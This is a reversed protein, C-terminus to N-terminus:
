LYKLWWIDKRRQKLQAFWKTPFYMAVTLVAASLWIMWFEDFGYYDGKNPGVTAWMINYLVKLVYLHVIYFFMPAGGFYALPKAVPSNPVREFLVLLLCGIGITPMLFLLSPPYKTLALFSMVTRLPPQAQFWPADGYFNLFRLVLFGVILGIGIAVLRKERADTTIRRGFIPGCAYGTLIVGIWPLLPYSTRIVLDSGIQFNTREYLVGWIEHFPSGPTVVIGGLLNHLCVIGLGITFQAWRPLYILAALAIMSLGIAWIVQLYIVPPPYSLSQTPWAYGVITFELLVLFVGRSLLFKSVEAKSHKQGYLYASLGTLAVFIPACLTSTLRTFFLAPAVTRADVPDTIAVYLWFTERVHDLLMFVMVLGRLADISTIRSTRVAQAMAKPPPPLTESAWTESAASM